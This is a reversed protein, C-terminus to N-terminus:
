QLAQCKHLIWRSGKSRVPVDGGESFEFVEKLDSVVDALERLTKPSKPYLYYLHLLMDTISSFLKSSFSDKCAIELRHAYCWGWFLWPLEQQM